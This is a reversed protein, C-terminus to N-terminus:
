QFDSYEIILVPAEPDGVVNRTFPLGERHGFDIVGGEVGTDGPQEAGQEQQMISAERDARETRVTGTSVDGDAEEGGSGCASVLLGIGGLLTALILTLRM